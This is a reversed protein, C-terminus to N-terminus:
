SRARKRNQVSRKRDRRHSHKWELLEYIWVSFAISIDVSNTFNTAHTQAHSSMLCPDRSVCRGCQQKIKKVSQLFSAVFHFLILNLPQRMRFSSKSFNFNRSEVLFDDCFRNQFNSINIPQPKIKKVSQLFSAVFHFLILNLPQRMRFSSKSFNFNRSEVLFDDCFRNQFNSINIPLNM